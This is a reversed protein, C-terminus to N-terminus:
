EGSVVTMGYEELADEVADTVYADTETRENTEDDIEVREVPRVEGDGVMEVRYRYITGIGLSHTEILFGENRESTETIRTIEM